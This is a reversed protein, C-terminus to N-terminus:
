NFGRKIENYEEIEERTIEMVTKNYPKILRETNHFTM